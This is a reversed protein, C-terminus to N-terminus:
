DNRRLIYDRYAAPNASHGDEAAKVINFMERATVYHLLYNKGDNYMTGLYEHMKRIKEGLFLDSTTEQAGHTYVKIFVWDPKGKVHIHSNVWIDVREKTPPNKGCIEGNEIRPVVFAKRTKWNLGLPGQILMLDGSSPRGVEVDVGTDHSKKRGPHDKAYYISNIKSTQSIDPASPLTFDAYCGATKLIGLENDVGCWRDDFRSNNLAWNGHIFGFRVAKTMKDRSLLGHKAFNDRCREIKEKFGKSTDHAHHLHVEVEAFGDKCLKALATLHEPRYEEEPYFFTHQPFRRDSDSFESAVKPYNDVWQKVRNLEISYPPNNWGPEFHDTVCFMIHIPKKRCRVRGM